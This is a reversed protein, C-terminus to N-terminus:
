VLCCNMLHWNCLSRAAFASSNSDKSHELSSQQADREMRKHGFHLTLLYTTYSFLKLVVSDQWIVEIFSPEEPLISEKALLSLHLYFSAKINLLLM